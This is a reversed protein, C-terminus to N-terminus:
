RVDLPWQKAGGTATVTVTYHGPQLTGGPVTVLLSSDLSRALLAGEIPDFQPVIVIDNGHIMFQASVLEQKNNPLTCTFLFEYPLLARAEGPATLTTIEKPLLPPGFMTEALHPPLGGPAAAVQATASIADRRRQPDAPREARVEVTRWGADLRAKEARLKADAYPENAKGPKAYHLRLYTYPIIGLLIALAIWKM